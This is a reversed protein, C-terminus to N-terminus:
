RREEHLATRQRVEDGVLQADHHRKQMRYLRALRLGALRYVDIAAAGLSEEAALAHEMTERYATEAREPVAAALADAHALAIQLVAASATDEDALVSEARRVAQDVQGGQYLARVAELEAQLAQEPTLATEKALTLAALAAPLDAPELRSYLVGVARHVDSVDGGEADALLEYALALGQEPSPVALLTEFDSPLLEQPAATPPAVPVESLDVKLENDSSVPVPSPDM